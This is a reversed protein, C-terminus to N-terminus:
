ADENKDLGYNPDIFERIWDDIPKVEDDIDVPKFIKEVNDIDKETEEEPNM